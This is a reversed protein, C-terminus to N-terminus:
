RFLTWFFNRTELSGCEFHVSGSHLAAGGCGRRLSQGAQRAVRKVLRIGYHNSLGRVIACDHLVRFLLPLSNLVDPWHHIILVVSGITGNRDLPRRFKRLTVCAAGLAAIILTYGCSRLKVRLLSRRTKICRKPHEFRIPGPHVDEEQSEQDGAEKQPNLMRGM